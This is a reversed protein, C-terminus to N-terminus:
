EGPGRQNEEGDGNEEKERGGGTKQAGRREAEKEQRKRRDDIEAYRKRAETERCYVFMCYFYTHFERILFVM